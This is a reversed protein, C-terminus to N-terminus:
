TMGFAQKAIEVDRAIRDWPDRYESRFCPRSYYNELVIWGDYGIERLAQAAGFFDTEGLGLHVSGQVSDLGDKVHVQAIKGPGIARIDEPVKLGAYTVPNQTDYYIGFNPLDIEQWLELLERAPFVSELTVRVPTGLAYACAEKMREGIRRRDAQTRPFGAFFAPALYVPLGMAACADLGATFTSWCEQGQSTEMPCIMGGAKGLANGAMGILSIGTEEAAYRYLKQVYSQTLPNNQAGGGWDDLQVGDIGLAKLRPFIAPGQIPTVWECIGLKM